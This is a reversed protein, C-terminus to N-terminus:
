LLMRRGATKPPNAALYAQPLWHQTAGLEEVIHLATRKCKTEPDLGNRWSEVVKADNASNFGISMTSTVQATREPLRKTGGKSTWSHKTKIVWACGINNCGQTGFTVSSAGLGLITTTGNTQDEMAWQPEPTTSLYGPNQAAAGKPCEWGGPAAANATCGTLPFEVWYAKASTTAASPQKSTTHRAHDRPHYLLFMPYTANDLPSVASGTALTKYMWQLMKKDVGPIPAHVVKLDWGVSTRKQTCSWTTADSLTRFDWMPPRAAPLATADTVTRNSITLAAAGGAAALLALLALAARPAM